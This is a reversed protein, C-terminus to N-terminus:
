LLSTILLLGQLCLNLGHDATLKVIALVVVVHLRLPAKEDSGRIEALYM